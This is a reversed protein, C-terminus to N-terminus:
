GVISVMRLVARGIREDGEVLTLREAEGPDIGKTFVRWAIEQSMTTASAVALGPEPVALTWRGDLRHLHWTGGCEGEVAVAAVAGEPAAIDRYAHPLGRMFTDLVPAYLERTLIGPRNTAVRIQQQHHWRETLERATDFWNESEREGAWSVPFAARGFPDLSAFHEVLDRVAVETLSVLVRPSLRGFASVGEANMRNILEVLDRDTRVPPGSPRWGDRVFALRRLATDLLHAAVQRVNWERALTPREWDAPELSRLLELLLADLPAFLPAVLLPPLSRVPV